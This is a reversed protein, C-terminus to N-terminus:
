KPLIVSPWACARLLPMRRLGTKDPASSISAVHPPSLGDLIMLAFLPLLTPLDLAARIGAIELARGVLIVIVGILGIGTRDVASWTHTRLGHRPVRRSIRWHDIGENRSRATRQRRLRTISFLVVPDFLRGTHYCSRATRSFSCGRHQRRSQLGWHLRAAGFVAHLRGRGAPDSAHRCCCTVACDM